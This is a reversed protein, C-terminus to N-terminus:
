WGLAHQQLKPIWSAYPEPHPAFWLGQERQHLFHGRYRESPRPADARFHAGRSERRAQAAELALRALQGSAKQGAPGALWESCSAMVEPDRFVSLARDLWEPLEPPVEWRSPDPAVALPAAPIASSPTQAIAEAARRGFVLGELLSNSALRNAGHLGTAAVEGVAWLGPLSTRGQEDTLVGGMTFHAGPRVPLLDRALDLGMERLTAALASFHRRVEEPDLHRLSLFVADRQGVARAVEDRPALEQEPHDALIRRGQRDILRAGFGRLAETLLQAPRRGEWALVTPHFQIFELDTLVAGAEFALWLGDGATTEPNSTFPWLGAMGGTALVTHAARRPFIGHPTMVWAGVVQGQNVLLQLVRGREVTVLPDRTVEQWLWQTLARGTFGDPAHWIRPQSHGAERDLHPNGAEDVAFLQYPLLTSLLAPAEATVMEVVPRYSLERGVRMTDEAHLRPHDSSAYAGAVGGQALYSNSITHDTKAVLRVAVGQRALAFAASLGALGAGVVLVEGDV